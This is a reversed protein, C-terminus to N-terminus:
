WEMPVLRNAINDPVGLEPDCSFITSRVDGGPYTIDVRYPKGTELSPADPPYVLYNASSVAEFLVSEPIADLYMVTVTVNNTQNGMPWQFIPTLTKIVRERWQTDPFPSLAQVSEFAEKEEESVYLDATLCDTDITEAKAGRSLKRGLDNFKVKGGTITEEVCTNLYSVRMVGAPRLDVKDDDFLHQYPQVQAAPANTISLVLAVPKPKRKSKSDATSIGGVLCM